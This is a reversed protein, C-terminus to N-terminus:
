TLRDIIADAMEKTGVPKKPKLDYTVYKREKIVKSVAKELRDAASGEGLYRLMMVGSLIVATPNVKDKGALKPASGHVAEFVACHEGINAGPAMGLGGILGACLDSVIDGYLNPLVLVDFIQPNQVLQMCLNDVIISEYKIKPYNQSVKKVSKLFLGDSIKMINAKHVATVKKRKHCKAYEFAFRAIRVSARRSISKISIGTDRGLNIGKEKSIFKIIDEHKRHSGRFEIGAYLGETNERVVVVDVGEIPANVGEYIKCPRLGAYLNLTKRLAVNISGFGKAVPTTVPGKLCIKNKKISDLVHEPLPTAFKKIAKEGAEVVDWEIDVKAAEICRRASGIVEPGIGDGPILTIRYKM